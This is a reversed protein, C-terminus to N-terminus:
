RFGRSLVTAHHEMVIRFAEAAGYRASLSRYEDRRELPVHALRSESCAKGQRARAEPASAAALGQEWLRREVAQSRALERREPRRNAEAVAKSRAALAHPNLAFYRKVSAARKERGASDHTYHDRCYQGRTSRSLERGCTACNRIPRTRPRGTM